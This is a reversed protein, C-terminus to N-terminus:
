FNVSPELQASVVKEKSQVFSDHYFLYKGKNHKKLPDETKERLIIKLSFRFM